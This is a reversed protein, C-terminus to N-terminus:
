EEEEERDEEEKCAGIFNTVEILHHVLQMHVITFHCFHATENAMRIQQKYEIAIFYAIYEFLLLGHRVPSNVYPSPPLPDRVFRPRSSHAIRRVCM